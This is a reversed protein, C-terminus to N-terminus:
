FIKLKKRRKRWFEKQYVGRVTRRHDFGKQVKRRRVTRHIGRRGDLVHGARRASLRVTVCKTDVFYKCIRRKPYLGACGKADSYRDAYKLIGIDTQGAAEVDLRGEACDQLFTKYQEDTILVKRKINGNFNSIYGKDELWQMIPDAKEFGIHLSRKLLATSAYGAERFCDIAEKLREASIETRKREERSAFLKTYDCGVALMVSYHEKFFTYRKRREETMPRAFPYFQSCFELYNERTINIKKKGDVEAILNNEELWELLSTLKGDEDHWRVKWCLLLYDYDEGDNQITLMEDLCDKLTIIDLGSKLESFVKKDEKM